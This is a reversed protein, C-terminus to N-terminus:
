RFPRAKWRDRAMMSPATMPGPASSNPSRKSLPRSSRKEGKPSLTRDEAPVTMVM